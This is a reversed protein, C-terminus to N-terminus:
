YKDDVTRQSMPLVAAMSTCLQVDINVSLIAASRATNAELRKYRKKVYRDPTLMNDQQNSMESVHIVVERMGM